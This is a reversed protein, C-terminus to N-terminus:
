WLLTVWNPANFASFCAQQAPQLCLSKRNCSWGYAFNAMWCFQRLNQFLSGNQIDQAEIKHSYAGNRATQAQCRRLSTPLFLTGWDALKNILHKNLLGNSHDGLYSFCNQKIYKFYCEWHGEQLVLIISKQQRKCHKPTIKLPKQPSIWETQAM